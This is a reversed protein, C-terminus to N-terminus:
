LKSQAKAGGSRELVQGLAAVTRKDSVSDWVLASEQPIGQSWRESLSSRLVKKTMARGLDPAVLWRRMEELTTPLVQDHAVVVADVMGLELLQRAPTLVGLQLLREAQRLGVVNGFLEVWYMPVPIGIQVENLGMAGDQSIVRIDCCLSLCCGGAPCAGRIAAATVKSSSYIKTLTRSLTTWFETLREKSTLPAYLEKFDLGATFVNRKLGSCFVMARVERDEELAEIVALLERWLGLDMSNVPEKAITVVAIGGAERSVTVAPMRM